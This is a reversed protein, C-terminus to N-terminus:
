FRGPNQRVATLNTEFPPPLDGEPLKLRGNQTEQQFTQLFGDRRLLRRFGQRYLSENVPSYQRPSLWKSWSSFTAVPSAALGKIKIL